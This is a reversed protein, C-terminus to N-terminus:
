AGIKDIKSLISFFLFIATTARGHLIFANNLPSNNGTFDGKNFL